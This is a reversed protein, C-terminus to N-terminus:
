EAPGTLRAAQLRDVLIRATQRLRMTVIEPYPASALPTLLAALDLMRRTVEEATARVPAPRGDAQVKPKVKARAIVLDIVKECTAAPMARAHRVAAEVYTSSLWGDLFPRAIEVQRAHDPPSARNAGTRLDALSRGERFTLRGAEVAEILEPALSLLSEYAHIAGPTIGTLKGLAQQGIRHRSRYALFRRGMEVCRHPSRYMEVLERVDHHGNSEVAVSAMRVDHRITPFLRLYDTACGAVANRWEM